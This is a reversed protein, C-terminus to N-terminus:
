LIQHCLKNEVSSQSFGLFKLSSLFVAALSPITVATGRTSFVKSCSNSDSTDITGSSLKEAVVVSLNHSDGSKTLEKPKSNSSSSRNEKENRTNNRKSKLKKQPPVYDDDDDDPSDQQRETGEVDCSTDKNNPILGKKKLFSRIDM